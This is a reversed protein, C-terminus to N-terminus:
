HPAVALVRPRMWPGPAVLRHRLSRASSPVPSVHLTACRDDIYPLLSRHSICCHEGDSDFIVELGFPEGDEGLWALPLLLEGKEQAWVGVDLEPEARLRRRVLEPLAFALYNYQGHNGALPVLPRAAHPV